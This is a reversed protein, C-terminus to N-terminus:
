LFCKLIYMCIMGETNCQPPLTSQQQLAAVEGTVAAVLAALAPAASPQKVDGVHGSGAVTTHISTSSGAPIGVVPPPIEDTVSFKQQSQQENQINQEMSIDDHQQHIQQQHAHHLLVAAAAQNM